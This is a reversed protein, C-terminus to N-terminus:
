GHSFTDLRRDYLEDAFDHKGPIGCADARCHQCHRFVPLHEEVESRVSNVLSCDPAEIHALEHNPILPIVNMMSAGADAVTKAIDRIHRDNIGPVLVANTKVVLGAGAAKGIGALQADILIRAGDIGTILKGDIVVGGNV